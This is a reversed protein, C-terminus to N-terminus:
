KCDVMKEKFKQLWTKITSIECRGGIQKIVAGSLGSALPFVNDVFEQDINRDNAWYRSYNSIIVSFFCDGAGTTDVPEVNVGRVKGKFDQM